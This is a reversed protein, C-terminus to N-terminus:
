LLARGAWDRVGAVALSLVYVNDYGRRTWWTSRGGAPLARGVELSVGVRIEGRHNGPCRVTAVSPGGTAHPRGGTVFTWTGARRGVVAAYVWSCAV